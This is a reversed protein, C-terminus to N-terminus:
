KFLGIGYNCNRCMEISDRHQLVRQRIGAYKGSSWITDFNQVDSFHGMAHDGNKDFCCPVIQGDWDVLTTLWLRPCAGKGHKVQFDDGSLAYRCYKGENPLWERAEDLTTVQTTKVLLRDLDLEKALAKIAAIEHENHKMVLFQAFLYPTKSNLEKKARVLNQIGALVTDLKGRHRYHEYTEQTVGDLSIIMSDLGSTVVARAKDLTQFYHANTSTNVYCGYSKAYRVMENFQPHLYPEGQHYLTIYLATDAITDVVQKYVEFDIMGTEHKMRGSGTICLPCRLNCMNTPEINVITPRGWVVPKKRIASIIFSSSNKLANWFRKWTLAKLVRDIAIEKDIGMAIKDLFSM